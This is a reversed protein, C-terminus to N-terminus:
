DNEMILMRYMGINLLPRDKQLKIEHQIERKPPLGTPEKFMEHHADVVDYLDSKFNPDCDGFSEHTDDAKPKIM